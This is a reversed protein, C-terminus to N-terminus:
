FYYCDMGDVLNIGQCPKKTGMTAFLKQKSACNTMYAYQHTGPYYTIGYACDGEQEIWDLVSFSFTDDQNWVQIDQSQKGVSIDLQTQLSNTQGEAYDGHSLYYIHEAQILAQLTVHMESLRSKEVAKNYQPLAVAALIGIILVVVLLEILTFGRRTNKQYM